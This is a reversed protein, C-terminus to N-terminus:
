FGHCIVAIKDAAVMTGGSAFAVTTTTATTKIPNGATTTEDVAICSPANTFTTAGFTVTGTAGVPTGQTVRFAADTGTIAPATGFGATITPTATSIALNGLLNVSGNKNVAFKSVSALQLDLFLSAANSSTATINELIGTFTVAANWTQTFTWSSNTVITGRALTYGWNADVGDTQFVQGATGIAKRAWAPSSNGVIVDGRVVAAALTDPHTVSLLSHTPGGSSVCSFLNTAQTYALAGSPCDTITRAVWAVGSGVLVTDDASVGVGTGGNAMPLIGSVDATLSAQATGATVIGATNVTVKAYGGAGVGSLPLDANALARFAPAGSGGGNPAAFVLNALQNAWALALTGTTTVPSGTVTFTAPASLGVSAATGAGAVDSTILSRCVWASGNYYPVQTAVCSNSAWRDFLLTAAALDGTLVSNTLALKSYAIAASGSVDANLISGALALKSYSIAAGGGIQANLIGSLQALPVTGTVLSSANLNTLNAGSVAAITGTIQAGPINTFAAASSSCVTDTGNSGLFFGSTCLGLRAWKPTANGVIVDGRVVAAALTDPHTTSLINHPNTVGGAGALLAGNYYLNGAIDTYVRAATDSPIAAIPIRLDQFTNTNIWTNVRSLLALVQNSLTGQGTLVVGSLGLGVTMAAVWRKMKLM